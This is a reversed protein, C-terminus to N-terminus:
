EGKISLGISRISDECRKIAIDACVSCEIGVSDPLAIALGERSKRYLAWCLDVIDGPYEMASWGTENEFDAEFEERLKDM